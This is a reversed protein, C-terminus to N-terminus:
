KQAGEAADTAEDGLKPDASLDRWGGGLQGKLVPDACVGEYQWIPAGDAEDAGVQPWPQAAVGAELARCEAPLLPGTEVKVVQTGDPNNLLLVFILLKVM